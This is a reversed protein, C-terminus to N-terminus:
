IHERITQVNRPVQYQRVLKSRWVVRVFVKLMSALMSLLKGLSLLGIGSLLGARRSVRIAQAFM